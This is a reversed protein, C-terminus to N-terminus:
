FPVLCTLLINKFVIAILAPLYAIEEVKCKHWTALAAVLLFCELVLYFLSIKLFTFSLFTFSDLLILLISNRKIVKDEIFFYLLLCIFSSSTICFLYFYSPLYFHTKSGLIILKLSIPPFVKLLSLYDHDLLLRFGILIVFLGLCSYLIPKKFSPYTYMIYLLLITILLLLNIIM